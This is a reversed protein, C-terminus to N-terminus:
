SSVPEPNAEKKWLITAGLIGAVISALFIAIKAAAFDAALPFAESAIFLSMTFGIGALAGAGFLQRWNYSAPKEAINFHVALRSFLYIGVPKGIVLGCFIAMMLQLDTKFVNLTVLVGANALAFLPLVFYSSWPEIAHLVRTAPSELRDHITNLMQVARPSPGHRVLRDEGFRAEANIIRQAQANLARFNAPPRTPICLSLIVGALTAHIGCRQLCFWLLSGLLIYPILHYIRWKNLAALLCALVVSAILFVVNIQETYFVAVVLISFLDDVIACATLFIRLEVPVRNGMFAIIAIAFATDTSITSGWGYSLPGAPAIALYIVTPIVMGGISAAIPLGAARRSSLRGVTFERKIELGVVLFFISLFGDNIWKILPLDFSIEGARFGFPIEWLATFQAGLSSNALVLALIVMVFLAIGASPAWRVFDLAATHIRYGLSGVMAESLSSEDWSGEYRRGNIFFTPALLAGSESASQIDDEVSQKAKVLKSNNLTDPMPLNFAVAIDKFDQENLDQRKMLAVHVEWFNNSTEAAYEALIAAKKALENGPLPLHRYVYRMQDGFRDRLNAIVEHAVHCSNSFYSGYEVLTIEAKPNGLLHDEKNVPETLRNFRTQNENIAPKNKKAM